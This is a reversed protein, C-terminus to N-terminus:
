PKRSTVVPRLVAKGDKITVDLKVDAGQYKAELRPLTERVQKAVAEFQVNTNEGTQRRAEIYREYLQKMGPDVPAAAAAAPPRAAPQPAAGPAPIATTARAPVPRASFFGSAPGQTSTRAPTVASAVPQPAASPTPIRAMAPARVSPAPMPDPPTHEDADADAGFMPLEERGHETPPRQSAVLAAHRTTSPAPGSPEDEVEELMDESIEQPEDDTRTTMRKALRQAKVVDRKFTGEEIQRLIRGWHTQLLTFRQVLTQFRFKLGTNRMQERHLMQFRRDVDKRQVFPLMKEYGAFYQDYKIRLRELRSELEDLEHQIENPTM